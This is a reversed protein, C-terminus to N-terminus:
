ETPTAMEAGTGSPLGLLLVVPGILMLWMAAGLGFHQAVAGIVLPILSGGLGGVAGVTMVTGSQGPMASYLQGKLISYWGSNFFGLAGAIAVKPLFGPALLFGIYL